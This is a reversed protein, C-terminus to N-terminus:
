QPSIQECDRCFKNFSYPFRSPLKIYLNMGVHTYNFKGLIHVHSYLQNYIYIYGYKTQLVHIYIYINYKPSHIPIMGQYGNKPNKWGGSLFGASVFRFDLDLRDVKVSIASAMRLRQAMAGRRKDVPKGPSFSPNPGHFYSFSMYIYHVRWYIFMAISIVM